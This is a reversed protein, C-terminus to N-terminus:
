SILCLLPGKKYILASMAAAGAAAAAAGAAVEATSIRDDGVNAIDPEVDPEPEQVEEDEAKSIADM